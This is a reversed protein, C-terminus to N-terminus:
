KPNQAGDGLPITGGLSKGGKQFAPGTAAPAAAEPAPRGFRYPVQFHFGLGETDGDVRLVLDAAPTADFALELTERVVGAETNAPLDVKVRGAKVTAGAPVEVRLLLPVPVANLREVEAVVVAATATRSVESWRVKVPSELRVTPEPMQQVHAPPAAPASAAPGQNACAFACSAVVVATLIRM